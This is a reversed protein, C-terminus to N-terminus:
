RAEEVRKMFELLTAVQVDGHLLHYLGPDKRRHATVLRLRDAFSNSDVTGMESDDVQRFFEIMFRLFVGTYRLYDGERNQSKLEIGLNISASRELMNENEFLDALASVAYALAFKTQNGKPTLSAKYDFFRAMDAIDDAFQSVMKHAIAAREAFSQAEDFAARSAPITADDSLGAMQKVIADRDPDDLKRAAVAVRDTLSRIAHKIPTPPITQDLTKALVLYRLQVEAIVSNLRDLDAESMPDVSLCGIMKDFRRSTSSRRNLDGFVAGRERELCGMFDVHVNRALHKSLYTESKEAM